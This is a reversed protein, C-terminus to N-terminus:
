DKKFKMAADYALDFTSVVLPGNVPIRYVPINNGFATFYIYNGAVNINTFNGEMIIEVNQGDLSMRKLAPNKTSNKQYYIYGGALNYCDIRDHTLIEVMDESLSYRCLRYNNEVDLYYIYGSDYLPYWLNGEWITSSSETATDFRYLYHNREDGNYYVSGDSQASAFNIGNKELVKEISKDIKLKCFAPGEDGSTLFYLYNDVLQLNFVLCQKLCTIDKGSLTSRYIGQLTRAYGLGGAGSAQKQFYFLYDGGANIHSVSVSTLKKFKDEDESMSYLSGNDYPNSFYVTGNYECFLGGNYSNGATNGVTGTPIPKVLGSRYSTFLMCGIILIFIICGALIRIKRKM